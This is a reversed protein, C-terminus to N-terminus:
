REFRARSVLGHAKRDDGVDVPSAVKIILEHGEGEAIAPLDVTVTIWEREDRNSMPDLVAQWLPRAQNSEALWISFETPVTQHGRLTELVVGYDMAFQTAGSPVPLRIESGGALFIGWRGKLMERGLTEPWANVSVGLQEEVMLKLDLSDAHPRPLIEFNLDVEAEFSPGAEIRIRRVRPVEGGALLRAMSVSDGLYPDILMGVKPLGYTLRYRRRAVPVGQVDDLVLWVADHQYFFSKVKGWAGSKLAFQMVLLEDDTVEPLEIAESLDVNKLTLKRGEPRRAQPVRKEWLVLHQESLVPRYGYLVELWAASDASFPLRRDLPDVDFIVYRPAESGRFFVANREALFPTYAKFSQFFPRSRFNMEHAIPVAVNDGLLDVNEEGVAERLRPIKPLHEDFVFGPSSPESILRLSKWQAWVQVLGGTMQGKSLPRPGRFGGPATQWLVLGMLLFLMATVKWAAASRHSVLFLAFMAPMGHFFFRVHGDARVFGHKWVLFALGMFLCFGAVGRVGVEFRSTQWVRWVVVLGVLIAAGWLGLARSLHDPDPALYMTAAFGVAIEWSGKLWAAFNPMEQGSALWFIALGVVFAVIAPFGYALRKCLVAAVVVVLLLAVAMVLYTFKALALFALSLGCLVATLVGISARLLVFGVALIYLPVTTDLSRGLAFYCFWLGVLLWWATGRLLTALLFFGFLHICAWTLTQPWVNGSLPPTGIVLWGLPGYTYFIEDGFQLGEQASYHLMVNWSPDLGGQLPQGPVLRHGLIFLLGVVVFLAARIGPPISRRHLDSKSVSM